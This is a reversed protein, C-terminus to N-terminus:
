PLFYSLGVRGCNEAFRPAGEENGRVAGGPPTVQMHLITYRYQRSAAGGPDIESGDLWEESAQRGSM